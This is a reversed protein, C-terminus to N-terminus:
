PLMVSSGTDRDFFYFTRGDSGIDGGAARRNYAGGGGQSRALAFLNGLALGGEEGCRGDANMWYRVGRKPYVGLSALYALEQYHMERGNLIVGTRGRSADRRLTGGINIGAVTFGQCPGGAFGWAGSRRDYWYAGKPVMTKYQKELRSLLAADIVVGNIAVGSDRAAQGSSPRSSRKSYEQAAGPLATMGFVTLTLATILMPFRNM